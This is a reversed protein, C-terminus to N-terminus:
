KCFMKFLKEFPSVMVMMALASNNNWNNVTKGRIDKISLFSMRTLMLWIHLTIVISKEYQRTIMILETTKNKQMIKAQKRGLIPVRTLYTFCRQGCLEFYWSCNRSLYDKDDGEKGNWICQHMLHIRRCKRVAWNVSSSM